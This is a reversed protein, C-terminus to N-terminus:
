ALTPNAPSLTLVTNGAEDLLDVTGKKGQRASAVKGLAVLLQQELGANPCAMRTTIADPIAISNPKDADTKIQANLVNCGTNGHLRKETMDFVLQMPDPMDDAKVEIPPIATVNWAGDLFGMDNKRLVMTNADSSNYIYLLYNNAVKEVRFRAATNLADIIASEHEADPCLRLTSAFEGAKAIKGGDTLAMRGNVTNCGTYAYFKILFPNVAMSDFVIYPREPTDDDAPAPIAKGGADAIIWKGYIIKDLLTETQLPTLGTSPIEAGNQDPLQSAKDTATVANERGIGTIKKVSSCGTAMFAIALGAVIHNLRIKM